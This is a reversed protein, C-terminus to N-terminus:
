SSSNLNALDETLVQLAEPSGLVPMWDIFNIGKKPYDPFTRILKEYIKQESM